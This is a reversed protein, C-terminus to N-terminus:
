GAWFRFIRTRSLPTSSRHYFSNESLIEIQGSALRRLRKVRLEDIVRFAYIGERIRTDSTDVLVRAGDEILPEMSDGWATCIVLGDTSRRGLSALLEYDMPMWGVQRVADSFSAAGAALRVDLIPVGHYGSAHTNPLGIGNALWDLSIDLASAIRAANFLSPESGKIMASIASKSVGSLRALEAQSMLGMAGALRSGFGIAGEPHDAVELNVTRNVPSITRGVSRSDQQRTTSPPMPKCRSSMLASNRFRYPESVTKSSLAPRSLPKTLATRRPLDEERASAAM